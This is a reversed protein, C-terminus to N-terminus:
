SQKKYLPLPCLSQRPAVQSCYEKRICQIFPPKMGGKEKYLFGSIALFVLKENEKAKM